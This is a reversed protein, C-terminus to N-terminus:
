LKSEVTTEKGDKDRLIITLQFDKVDQDYTCIGSSCTALDLNTKEYEKQGIINVGSGVIGKEMKYATYRLAYDLTQYGSINEIKFSITKKDESLIITTTPSVVPTSPELNQLILIYSNEINGANDVAHSTIVYTIGTPHDLLTYTWNTTGIATARTTLETGSVWASGNWYEGTDTRNISVETHNIGSSEDSASGSIVGDWGVVITNVSTIHGSGSNSPITIISLPNINDEIKRFGVSDALIYGPSAGANLTIIGQQGHFLFGGIKAWKPGTIGSADQPGCNTSQDALKRQDLISTGLLNVGDYVSYTAINRSPDCIYQAYAEYYGNLVINTAWTFTQNNPSNNTGWNDGGVANQLISPVSNVSYSDWQGTKSVTGSSNFDTNMVDDDIVINMTGAYKGNISTSNNENGISDVATVKYYYDSNTTLGSDTFTTGSTVTAIYTFISNDLSQYIKYYM